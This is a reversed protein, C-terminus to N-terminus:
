PEITIPTGDKVLEFIEEIEQDTVAICGATWDFKKHIRTFIFDPAKNPFGHIMIDGGASYGNKEAYERQERTPYSIKLSLHYASNPNHSVIHYEGEPTKNDGQHTKAGKPQKGLSINYTRVNIDDHRLYMKRMAKKVLINNVDMNALVTNNDATNEPVERIPPLFIDTIFGCIIGICFTLFLLFKKM